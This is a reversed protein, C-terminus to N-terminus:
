HQLIETEINVGAKQLRDVYAQGLFAPTVIGGQGKAPVHKQDLLIMAAEGLFLGTLEYGGGDYALKGFVKGSKNDAEQPDAIAIGHYEVRSGATSDKSPGDGPAYVFKQALWRIPPISLCVSLAALSVHVIAGLFVNRVKAFEQFRFNPGYLEPMLSSSRHVIATDCVAPLATTVTGLHPVLRSGFLQQLFPTPEVKSPPSLSICYPDAAKALEKM